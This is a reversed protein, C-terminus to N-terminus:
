EKYNIIGGLAAMLYIIILILSFTTNGLNAAISASSKKLWEFSVTEKLIQSIPEGEDIDIGPVKNLMQIYSQMSQYLEMAMEDKSAYFSKSTQVIIDGIGYGIAITFTLVVIIALSKPFKRKMLWDILPQIILGIYIALVLPILIVKFTM